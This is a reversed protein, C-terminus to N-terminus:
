TKTKDFRNSDSSCRNSNVDHLPSHNNYVADFTLCRRFIKTSLLCAKSVNIKAVNVFISLITVTIRNNNLYILLYPLHVSIGSFDM